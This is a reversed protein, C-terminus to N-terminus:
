LGKYHDLLWNAVNGTGGRLVDRGDVVTDTWNVIKFKVFKQLTELINFPDSLKNNLGINVDVGEM